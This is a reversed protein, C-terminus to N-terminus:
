GRASSNATTKSRAMGRTVGALLFLVTLAPRAGEMAARLLVSAM